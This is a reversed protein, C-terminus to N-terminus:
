MCWVDALIVVTLELFRRAVLGTSDTHHHHRVPRKWQLAMDGSNGVSARLDVGWFERPVFAEIEDHRRTTFALTPTQCPGYSIVSLRPDGFTVRAGELLQRTLHRTFSCGIKLDLEQRADVALAEHANPRRPRGFAASLASPTLASFHARYISRDAPFLGGGRLISIVEFSGHFHKEPEM